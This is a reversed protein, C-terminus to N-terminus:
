VYVVDIPVVDIKAVVDVVKNNRTEQGLEIKIECDFIVENLGEMWKTTKDRVEDLTTDTIITGLFSKLIPFLEKTIKEKFIIKDTWYNYM